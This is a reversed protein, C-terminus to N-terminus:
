HFDHSRVRLADLGEGGAGEPAEVERPLHERPPEPVQWFREVLVSVADDHRQLQGDCGLLSASRAMKHFRAWVKPWIVLNVMATEDEFTMFVVGSATGPRQRSSVLGAIRVRDGPHRRALTGLRVCGMAELPARVLEMPHTEVSLGVTRYDAQLRELEDQVPLVPPPESPELSAFLPLDTWLGQLTWAAERRGRQVAEFAGAEALTQLCRRDLGTRHAMDALSRFPAVGRASVIAQGQEQGMGAVLRFGLRLVAVGEEGRELTCDWESAAVCVPRVEVGHRQADAVLARASYFGM